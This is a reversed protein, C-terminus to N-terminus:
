HGTAVVMVDFVELIVKNSYKAKSKFVWKLHKGFGGYELMGVYDVKTNFRIM